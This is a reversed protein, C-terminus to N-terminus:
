CFCNYINKMFIIFLLRKITKVNEQLTNIPLVQAAKLNITLLIEGLAKEENLCTTKMMIFFAFIAIM